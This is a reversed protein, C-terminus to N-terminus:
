QLGRPCQFLQVSYQRYDFRPRQYARIFECRRFLWSVVEGTDDGVIGYRRRSAIVWFQQDRDSMQQLQELDAQFEVSELSPAYHRQTAIPWVLVPDSPAHDEVYEFAPRYDFRNGDTLQSVWSPATGAVLVTVLGATLWCQHSPIKTLTALKAGAVGLSVLVMPVMAIAYAAYTDTVFSVTWLGVLTGIIGGLGIIGSVRISPNFRKSTLAVAAALGAVFILPTLWEVIAPLLRLTALIGRGEFNRVAEERGTLALLALGALLVGCVPAAVKLSLERSPLSLEFSRFRGAVLLGAGAGFFPFLFTPHTVAGLLATVTTLIYWRSRAGDSATCARVLFYFTLTSLLFILSWYRAMTSAHLHWPAFAVLTGSILGGAPGALKSATWWVALIGALGFFLPLLRLGVETQPLVELLPHQLLYYLPRAEIGPELSTGFLDRAEWITYIEDQDFPHLAFGPLRALLGILFLAVAHSWRIVEQQTRMIEGPFHLSSRGARVSARNTARGRHHGLLFICYEQWQFDAEQVRRLHRRSIKGSRLQVVPWRGRLAM